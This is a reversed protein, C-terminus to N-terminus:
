IFSDSCHQLTTRCQRQLKATHALSGAKGHQHHAGQDIAMSIVGLLFFVLALLIGVCLGLECLVVPAGGELGHVGDARVGGAAQPLAAPGAGDISDQGSNAQLGVRLLLPLRAACLVLCVVTACCDFHQKACHPKGHCTIRLLMAPGVGGRHSIDTQGSEVVPRLRFRLRLVLHVSTENCRCELLLM